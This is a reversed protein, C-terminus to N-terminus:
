RGIISFFLLVPGKRGRFARDLIRNVKKSSVWTNFAISSEVDLEHTSKVV